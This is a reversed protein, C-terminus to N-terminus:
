KFFKAMSGLLDASSYPKHLLAQHLVENQTVHHRSDSFGSALQIKVKPYHQQMYDALQYGDMNPMIVDSLVADIHSSKLLEIANLGDNATLVRYGSMSLIEEALERLAPEDDVVLITEGNGSHIVEKTLPENKQMVESQYRPFYLVFESGQGKQSYVRVTGGAREMFGYVQSLGLGTGKLGKTSFFPDFVKNIIDKDIGFGTDTISLKFYDNEALGLMKAEANSLNATSTTFTLEGGDPMVYQANITLNLLADELESPDVWIMWDSDCLQYNIKILATVSKSFLEQQTKLITHINVAQAETSEQKSFALLRKTLSQGRKGAQSINDIYRQLGDVKSYKIEMLDTYGLIVGLMNNYDHAIGGVLKGLADMKQARQLQAQQSKLQTLDQCAAIFRRGEDALLPLETVTVQMPFSGYSKHLGNIERTGVLDDSNNFASYEALLLSFEKELVGDSGMGFVTEATQNYSLIKGSETMTLVAEGLSNLIERQELEKKELAQLAERERTIDLVLSAGGIVEGSDNVLASNHWECLIIRGDKTLNENISVTGGSQAMLNKWIDEVDVVADAPLMIDVFNRGKVEKLPYGFMKEAADNWDLVQFDTNWEIAALPTQERYLKLHQMSSNIEDELQKQKSIDQIMCLHRPQSKDEVSMKAVTMNIWVYEGDPHQYRKQMSFNNFEGANLRAMNDLDEQVDDPHTISMWDISRMEHRSRGAIEAFKPNVEYIGGSLSDIIAIGLPAEEFMTKFQSNTRLLETEIAKKQTIDNIIAVFVAQRGQTVLQLDTEVQYYSGDKRQHITEFELRQIEGSLLPAIAATFKEQSFDPKIDVPTLEKLEDITYAINKLASKNAQIFKLTESDFIFIENLSSEVINGLFQAQETSVDEASIDVANSIIKVVNNAFFVAKIHDRIVVYHGQEHKIRYERVVVRKSVIAEVFGAIMSPLDEPNVWQQWQTPLQIWQKASIGSVELIPESVYTLLFDAENGVEGEYVFTVSPAVDMLNNLFEVKIRLNERLKYQQTVNQFVLIVGSIDVSEAGKARIPAASDSIQYREGTKSVLVTHNALEVVQKTELAQQVPSNVVEDSFANYIDFVIASDVGVAQASSWGTLETAKQNMQTILGRRDTVIVADGISHLTINLKEEKEHLKLIYTLRNKDYFYFLSAMLFGFLLTLFILINQIWIFQELQETSLKLLKKEIEDTMESLMLFTADLQQDLKTGVQSNEKDAWRQRMIERTKKIKTIVSEFQQHLNVGDTFIINNEANLRGELISNSQEEADDLYKWVSQIDISTDGALVEEFWLHAATMDLKVSMAMESLPRYRESVERSLYFSYFITSCIGITLIFILLPVRFSRKNM